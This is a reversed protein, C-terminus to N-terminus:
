ETPKLSRIHANLAEKQEEAFNAYEFSPMIGIFGKKGKELVGALFDKTGYQSLDPAFGDIGGGNGRGEDGHCSACQEAFIEKGKNVELPYQTTKTNSIDQMVYAAVAKADSDSLEVPAMEGAMYNLGKSGTKIVEIIGEEKGWKTLDGAKGNMGEGTIGHCQSCQVLFINQGMTILEDPSLGKWTSAYKENYKQVEQNYEGIQSYANLPYGLFIYWFGWILVGLFCAAWGVPINNTQEGIGDWSEGTAEGEAKGDKIKKLYVGMVFITIVLIAFAGVLGLTTINDSWNMENGKIPNKNEHNLPNMM